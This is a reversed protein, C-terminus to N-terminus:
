QCWIEPLGSNLSKGMGFRFVVDADLGFFFDARREVLGRFAVFGAGLFAGVRFGEAEAFSLAASL